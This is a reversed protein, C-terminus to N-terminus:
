SCLSVRVCVYTHMHVYICVYVCIDVSMCMCVCMHVCVYVYVCAHMCVCMSKDGYCMHAYMCLCVHVYVTVSWIDVCVHVCACAGAHADMDCMWMDVSGYVCVCLPVHVCVYAYACMTRIHLTPIHFYVCECGGRGGCECVIKLSVCALLRVDMRVYMPPVHATHNSMGYRYFTINHMDTRADYRGVDADCFTGDAQLVKIHM